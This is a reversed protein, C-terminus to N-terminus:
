YCHLTKDTHSTQKGWGLVEGLNFKAKLTAIIGDKNPTLGKGARKKNSRIMFSAGIFHGRM